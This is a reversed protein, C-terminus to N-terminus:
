SRPFVRKSGRGFLLTGSAFLSHQNDGDFVRSDSGVSISDFSPSWNHLTHIYLYLVQFSAFGQYSGLSRKKKKARAGGLCSGSRVIFFLFATKEMRVLERAEKTHKPKM